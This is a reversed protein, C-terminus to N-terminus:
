AYFIFQCYLKFLPPANSDVYYALYKDKTLYEGISDLQLETWSSDAIFGEFQFPLTKVIIVSQDSSNSKIIQERCCDEATNDKQHQETKQCCPMPEEVDMACHHKSDQLYSLQSFVIDRCYHVNVSWGVNSFIFVILFLISIHKKNLM